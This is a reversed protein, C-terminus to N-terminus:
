FAKGGTAARVELKHDPRVANFAMKEAIAAGLDYGKAGAYDFIRIVADALEVEEMKRHPLKDDDLDKRLGEMAESLESHALCIKQTGLLKGLKSGSRVEIADVPAGYAMEGWWGAQASAQFCADQLTRGADVVFPNGSHDGLGQAQLSAIVANEGARVQAHQIQDILDSM